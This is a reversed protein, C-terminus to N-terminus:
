KWIGLFILKWVMLKIRLLLIELGRIKINDVTELWELTRKGLPEESWARILSETREKKCKTDQAGFSQTLLWGSM